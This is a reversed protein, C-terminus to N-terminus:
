KKVEFLKISGLWKGKRETLLFDALLLLLAAIFFYQFQEEYDSFIKSEYEKKDLKEIQEFLENLGVQTNNARIYQGGGSVAVKNLTIEDLKSIVISGSKDKKYNQYGEEPIPAGEPLGMGLTYVLIGKEHALRAAEVPDDEHNEGDTIVIVVKQLDSNPPFSHTALDIAKGIATGQVPVIGTNISSLFTKASIYDSTIPLQTYADGAFVILGIQDDSLKDVLKTIAQKARELRSPQIDQANMSNSVDLAIILQIGKRKVDQLKSGFQPRSIGIILFVMASLFLYFKVVPRNKSYLPILQMILDSDGFEALQKQKKKRIYYFLFILVPIVLLAYLYYPNAFRFM